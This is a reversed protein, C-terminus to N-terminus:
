IHIFQKYYNQPFEWKKTNYRNWYKPSITISYKEDNDRLLRPLVYFSSNAIIAHRAYRIARWNIEIDTICEFDPFFQKATRSDDTHVEFKMNPNEKRMLEIARDWYEKPLFLEPIGVYEGGRFGIVCIDDPVDVRGVKLWENIEDIRHEWYRSDEFNGDIITNDEVYNIEPNYYPTNEEWLRELIIHELNSRTFRPIVKGSPEELDFPIYGKKGMDLNMFSDGKFNSPAVVGFELNKDLALCRVTVYRFLQNGLGSGKHMISAIM